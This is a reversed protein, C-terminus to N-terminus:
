LFAKCLKCMDKAIFTGKSKAVAGVRTNAAKNNHEPHNDPKSGSCSIRDQGSAPQTGVNHAPHCLKCHSQSKQRVGRLRTFGWISGHAPKLDPIFEYIAADYRQSGLSAITKAVGLVSYM